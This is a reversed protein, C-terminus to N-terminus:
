LPETVRRAMDAAKWHAMHDTMAKKFAPRDTARSVYDALAPRGALLDEQGLMRLVDAMIIDAASFDGFVWDRTSLQHEMADLHSNVWRQGSAIVDDDPVAGFVDPMRKALVLQMWHMGAMEVTNLAAFLWQVIEIRKAEPLLPTGEALYLVIAGSEFLTVDGDRIIPVQAFPQMQRHADSKPELPVTAVEYPRGTEELVWRVRLDRVLGRPFEPVWDLTYLTVTM